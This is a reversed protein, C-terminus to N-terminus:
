QAPPMGQGGSMPCAMGMGKGMMPCGNKMCKMGACVGACLAAVMVVIGIIQGLLKLGEKEKSAAAFVLYGVGLAILALALSM